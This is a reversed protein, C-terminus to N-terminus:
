PQTISEVLAVWYLQALPRSVPVLPAAIWSMNEKGLKVGQQLATDVCLFLCRERIQVLSDDVPGAKSPPLYYVIPHTPPTPRGEELLPM